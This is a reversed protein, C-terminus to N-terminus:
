LANSKYLKDNEHGDKVGDKDFYEQANAWTADFHEWHDGIDKQTFLFRIAGKFFVFKEAKIIIGEWSKGDSRPEGYLIQKAKAIKTTNAVIVTKAESDSTLM